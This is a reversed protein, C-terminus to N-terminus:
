LHCLCLNNEDYWCYRFLFSSTNLSQAFFLLIFMMLSNYNM